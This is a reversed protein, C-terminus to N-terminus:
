LPGANYIELSEHLPPGAVLDGATGAKLKADLVANYETPATPTFVVEIDPHTKTFAPIIKDRWVKLDDTRWSEITLQTKGQGLNTGFGTLALLALWLLKKFM